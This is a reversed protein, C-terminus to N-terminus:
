PRAKKCLILKKGRDLWEKEKKNLLEMAIELMAVLM